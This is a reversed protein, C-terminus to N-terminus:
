QLGGPEHPQVLARGLDRGHNRVPAVDVALRLVSLSPPLRLRLALGAAPARGAAGPIAEAPSIHTRARTAYIGEVKRSVVSSSIAGQAGSAGPPRSTRASGARRHRRPGISGPDIPLRIM